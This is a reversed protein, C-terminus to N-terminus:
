KGESEQPEWVLEDKQITAKHGERKLQRMFLEGSASINSDKREYLRYATGDQKVMIDGPEADFNWPNYRLVSMM